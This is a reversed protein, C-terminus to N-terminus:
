TCTVHKRVVSFAQTKAGLGNLAIKESKTV